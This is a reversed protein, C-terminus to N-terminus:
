KVNSIPSSVSSCDQMNFKELLRHIAAKQSLTMVGFNKKYVIEINLFKKVPGLDKMKFKSNLQSKVTELDSIHKTAILMDDVYLGLYVITEDKSALYVM